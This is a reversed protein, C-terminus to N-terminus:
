SPVRHSTLRHRPQARLQLRCTTEANRWQYEADSFQSPLLCVNSGHALLGASVLRGDETRSAQLFPIGSHRSIHLRDPAADPSALSMIM